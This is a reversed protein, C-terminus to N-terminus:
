FLACAIRLADVRQIPQFGDDVEFGRSVLGPIWAAQLKVLDLTRITALVEFRGNVCTRARCAVNFVALDAALGDIELELNIV